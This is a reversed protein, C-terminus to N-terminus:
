VSVESQVVFYQVIHQIIQEATCGEGYPNERNSSCQTDSAISQVKEAITHYRSPQVLSVLGTSLLEPWETRHKLVLVDKGLYYAEKQLGGSDTLVCLSHKLLCLMKIYSQPDLIVACEEVAAFLGFQCLSARLRPHMPIVLQYTKSLLCLQNIITNLREFDDVNEERHLTVLVYQGWHLELHHFENKNSMKSFFLASDCMIDGVNYIKNPAIGAALLCAVASESPCFLLSSLQDTVVRNVEEPLYYGARIGAEVHAVPIQLKVAALAAAVTSNTDGYVIVCHPKEQILIKEIEELMRGTMAGHSMSNINLNYKPKPIGMEDFFVQSMNNDFHQGTHVIVEFLGKKMQIKKSLMAAKIFQPRAGLVTVIKLM